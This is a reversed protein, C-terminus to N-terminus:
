NKKLILFSAENFSFSTPNKIKDKILLISPHNRYKSIVNNVPDSLESKDILYLNERIKLVKPANKFFYNLEESILQNDSIITKDEDIVTIKSTINGKEFFCVFLFFYFLVFCFFFPQITKCFAKNDCTKSSDLNSFFKKREKKYM